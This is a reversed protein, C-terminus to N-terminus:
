GTTASAQLRSEDVLEPRRVDQLDRIRGLRFSRGPLHQNPDAGHAHAAQEVDAGAGAAVRERAESKRVDEAGVEGAVQDLHPVADRADLGSVADRDRREHGAPLAGRALGATVVSAGARLQDSHM